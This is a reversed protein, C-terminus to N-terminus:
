ENVALHAASVEFDGTLAASVIKVALVGENIRGGGSLFNEVSATRLPIWPVSAALIDTNGAGPTTTSWLSYSQGNPFILLTKDRRPDFVIVKEVTETNVFKNEYIVKYQKTSKHATTLDIQQAGSPEVTLAM